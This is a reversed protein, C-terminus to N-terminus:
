KKKWVEGRKKLITALINYRIQIGMTDLHGIYRKLM